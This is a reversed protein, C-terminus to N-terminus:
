DYTYNQKPSLISDIILDLELQTDQDGFIPYDTELQMAREARQLDEKTQEKLRRARASLEAEIEVAKNSDLGAYLKGFNDVIDHETAFRGARYADEASEKKVVQALDYIEKFYDRVRKFHLATLRNGADENAKIGRDLQNVIGRVYNSADKKAHHRKPRFVPAHDFSFLQLRPNNQAKEHGTNRFWKFYKEAYAAFIEEIQLQSATDSLSLNVLDQNELNQLERAAGRIRIEVRWVDRSIDLGAAKWNEVIYRKMKVEQLERTKNYIIAQVAKGAKGFTLSNFAVRGRPSIKRAQEFKLLPLESGEIEANRAAIYEQEKVRTVTGEFNPTRDYITCSDGNDKAYYTGDIHAYAKALGVKIYELDIFGNILTQARLGNFFENFDCAIDLRNINAYSMGIGLMAACTRDWWDKEYLIQNEMKLVAASPNQQKDRPQWALVGVLTKDPEFVEALYMWQKTGHGYPKVIYGSPQVETSPNFQRLMHGSVALWDLSVLYPRRRKDKPNYSIAQKM